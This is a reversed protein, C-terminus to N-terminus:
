GRAVSWRIVIEAGGERLVEEAAQMTAGTTLVDDVLLVAKPVQFGKRIRMPNKKMGERREEKSREVQARWHHERELLDFIPTYTIAGIAHALDRTQHFGRWREKWLALPMPVIAVVGVSRMHEQLPLLRPALLSSLIKLGEGDGGYKWSCLLRRIMPNAYAFPPGDFSLDAMCESCLLAGEKQCSLCERPFFVDIM